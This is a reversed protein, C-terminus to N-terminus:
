TRAPSYTNSAAGLTMGWRRARSTEGDLLTSQQGVLFSEPAAFLRYGHRKLLRSIGRSVRGTFV